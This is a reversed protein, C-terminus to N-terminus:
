APRFIPVAEQGGDREFSIRLPAGSRLAGPDADALQAWWWPGEALQGIALITAGGERGPVVTWSVLTAAGDARSWELEASGCRPCQEITPEGAAGCHQCRRILFEGRSTGDFFPATRADRAVPGVPM